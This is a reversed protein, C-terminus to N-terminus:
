MASKEKIKDLVNNSWVKNYDKEIKEHLRQREEEFMIKYWKKQIEIRKWIRKNKTQM